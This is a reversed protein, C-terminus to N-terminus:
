RGPRDAGVRIQDASELPDTELDSLPSSGPSWGTLPDLGAADTEKGSQARRDVGLVQCLWAIALHKTLSLGFLGALTGFQFLWLNLAVGVVVLLLASVSLQFPLRQM